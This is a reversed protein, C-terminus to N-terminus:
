FVGCLEGPTNAQHGPLAWGNLNHITAGSVIKLIVMQSVRKDFTRPLIREDEWGPVVTPSARAHLHFYHSPRQKNMAFNRIKVPHCCLLPVDYWEWIIHCHSLSKQSWWIFNEPSNAFRFKLYVGHFKAIKYLIKYAWPIQTYRPWQGHRAHPPGPQCSMTWDSRTMLYTM